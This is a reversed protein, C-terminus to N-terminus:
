SDLLPSIRNLMGLKQAAKNYMSRIHRNLKLENGIIVGFKKEECINPPKQKTLYLTMMKVVMESIRTIANLVKM